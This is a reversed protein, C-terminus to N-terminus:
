QSDRVPLGHDRRALTSAGASLESANESWFKTPQPFIRLLSEVVERGTLTRGLQGAGYFASRGREAYAEANGRKDRTNFREQCKLDTLDRGLSSAHDFSRALCLTFSAGGAITRTGDDDRILVIGGTKM